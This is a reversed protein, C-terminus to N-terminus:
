LHGTFGKVLRKSSQGFVVVQRGWHHRSGTQAMLRSSISNILNTSDHHVIDTKQSKLPVFLTILGQHHNWGVWRLVFFHTWYSWKGLKKPTFLIYFGNQFCWRSRSTGKIGVFCVGDFGVLPGHCRGALTREDANWACRTDVFHAVRSGSREAFESPRTPQQHKNLQQQTKGLPDMFFHYIQRCSHGIKITQM